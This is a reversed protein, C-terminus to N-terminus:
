SANLEREQLLIANQFLKMQAKKTEHEQKAAKYVLGCFVAYLVVTGAIITGGVIEEQHNSVKQKFSQWKNM